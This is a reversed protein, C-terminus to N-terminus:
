ISLPHLLTRLKHETEDWESEPNSGATIGAGAYLLADKELLQLCRLNVYLRSGKKPDMPGLFGSYFERDYGENAKIFELSANKPIGGVAPTPHLKLLLEAALKKINAPSDEM